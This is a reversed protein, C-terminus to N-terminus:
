VEVIDPLQKALKSFVYGALTGEIVVAESEEITCINLTDDDVTEDNDTDHPFFSISSIRDLPIIVDAAKIYIFKTM